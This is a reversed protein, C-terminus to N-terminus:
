WDYGKEYGLEILLDGAVDKFLQKHKDSFQERWGGTQGRRFTPSRQPNIAAQLIQLAAAEPVQLPFGRQVAHHLIAALQATQDHILDEFRLSLVEPRGLWGIFPAFRGAIDPFPAAGEPLGLISTRLREDFSHLQETYYTHHFHGPEMEAVYHVHSVVVDRPDRLIFYAAFGPQCLVAAIEPTAHLHGFGIDGPQLRRLDRHLDAIPREAGTQNDYTVIVPLGSNVAPGLRPFGELIQSLLHTGSKPFSNAFLVPVSALGPRRYRLLAAARRATHRAYRGQRMFAQKLRVWAESGAEM